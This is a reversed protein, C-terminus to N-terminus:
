WSFQAPSEMFLTPEPPSCLASRPFVIFAIPLQLRELATVGEGPGGPGLACM